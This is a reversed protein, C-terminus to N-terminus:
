HRTGLAQGVDRRQSGRAAAARREADDQRSWRRKKNTSSRLKQGAMVAVAVGGEKRLAPVNCLDKSLRVREVLAANCGMRIAGAIQERGVEALTGLPKRTEDIKQQKTQQEDVTM